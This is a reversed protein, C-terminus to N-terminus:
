MPEDATPGYLSPLPIDNLRLYVGLQARHHVLHNMVMIRLVRVRPLTFIDAGGARLTWPQLLVEDSAGALAERAKPAVADFLELLAQRSTALPPRAAAMEPSAVDIADTVLTYSVWSALQALHTALWAMSPSKAHPTWDLKEEPVRELIKRAGALEQDFEPLLMETLTM